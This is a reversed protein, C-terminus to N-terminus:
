ATQMTPCSSQTNNMIGSVLPIESSCIWFCIPRSYASEMVNQKVFCRRPKWFHRTVLFWSRHYLDPRYKDVRVMLLFLGVFCFTSVAAAWDGEGSVEM